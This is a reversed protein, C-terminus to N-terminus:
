PRVEFKFTGQTHHTDIAVASWAVKYMGPPLKPLSVAMLLENKGDVKADHRDVERGTADFVQITSGDHQLRETFWIKVQSPPVTVTSGVSPESTDLFAHAHAFATTLLFCVVISKFTSKM